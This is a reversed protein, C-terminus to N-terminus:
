GQGSSKRVTVPIIISDELEGDNVTLIIYYTGTETYNHIVISGTGSTGDDFDWSFSLTDGDVDFTESADFTIDEDIGITLHKGRNGNIMLDISPKRNGIMNKLTNEDQVRIETGNGFNMIRENNRFRIQTGNSYSINIESIVPLLKYNDGDGYILISDNLDIDITITNNGKQFNFLHQIKLTDSPIEFFVTEGTASLIATVNDIVIWLNTYNGINIQKLGLQETLNNIHLNILDVIKPESLFSNWGTENSFLKVESFKINIHTFNESPSDRIRIETSSFQNETEKEDNKDSTEICGTILIFSCIIIAISVLRKKM